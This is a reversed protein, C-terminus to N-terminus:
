IKGKTAPVYRVTNIKPDNNISKDNMLSNYISKIHNLGRPTRKLNKNYLANQKLKRYNKISSSQRPRSTKIRNVQLAPKFVNSQDSSIRPTNKSLQLLLNHHSQTGDFVLKNRTSNFTKYLVFPENVKTEVQRQRYRFVNDPGASVCVLFLATLLALRM